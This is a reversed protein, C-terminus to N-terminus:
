PAIMDETGFGVSLESAAIDLEEFSIMGSGDTDAQRTEARQQVLAEIGEFDGAFLNM